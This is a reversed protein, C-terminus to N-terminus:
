RTPPSVKSSPEAVPGAAGGARATASAPAVRRYMEHYRQITRDLRYVERARM